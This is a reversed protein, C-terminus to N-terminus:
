GRRGFLNPVNELLMSGEFDGSRARQVATDASLGYQGALSELAIREVKHGIVAQESPNL